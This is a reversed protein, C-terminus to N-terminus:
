LSFLVEFKPELRALYRFLQNFTLYKVRGAQVQVVVARSTGLRYALNTQPEGSRAMARRLVLCMQRKVEDLKESQRQTTEYKTKGMDSPLAFVTGV